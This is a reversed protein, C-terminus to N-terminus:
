TTYFQLHRWDLVPECPLSVGLFYTCLSIPDGRWLVRGWNATKVFSLNVSLNTILQDKRPQTQLNHIARPHCKPKPSTARLIKDQINSFAKLKRPFSSLFIYHWLNNIPNRSAFICWALVEGYVTRKKTHRLSTPSYALSPPRSM